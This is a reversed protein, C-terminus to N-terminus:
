ILGNLFFYNYVLAIVLNCDNTKSIIPIQCTQTTHPVAHWEIIKAHAKRPYFIM